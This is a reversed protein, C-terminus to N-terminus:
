LNSIHYMYQVHIVSQYFLDILLQFYHLQTGDPLNGQSQKHFYLVHVHLQINTASHIRNSEKFLKTVVQNERARILNQLSGLAPLLGVLKM